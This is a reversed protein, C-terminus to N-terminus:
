DLIDYKSNNRVWKQVTERKTNANVILASPFTTGPLIVTPPVPPLVPLLPPTSDSSGVQYSVPTVTLQKEPQQRALGKLNPIVISKVAVIAVLAIIVALLVRERIRM